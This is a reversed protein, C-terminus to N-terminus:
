IPKDIVELAGVGVVGESNSFEDALHVILSKAISDCSQHRIGGNSEVLSSIRCVRVFPDPDDGDVADHIWKDVLSARSGTKNDVLSENVFCLLLEFTLTMNRNGEVVRM